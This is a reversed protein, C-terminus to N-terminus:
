NDSRLIRNFAEVEKNLVELAVEIAVRRSEPLSAAYNSFLEQFGKPVEDVELFEM